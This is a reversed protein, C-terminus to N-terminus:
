SSSAGSEVNQFGACPKRFGILYPLSRLEMAFALALRIPLRRIPKPPVAGVYHALDIFYGDVTGLGEMEMPVASAKERMASDVLSLVPETILLYETLPVSNKLMRHVLIVDVGALETRRRVKHVAAEGLHGAFKIKLNGVQTCGDCKCANCAMINQLRTHFARYIRAVQDSVFALDPQVRQRYGIYFFVADGELKSLTLPRQAADIVAELLRTVIDQAHALSTRHMKMFRTYGGIDAILLFAPQVAMVAHYYDPPAPSNICRTTAVGTGTAM